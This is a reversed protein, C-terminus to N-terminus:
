LEAYFILTKRTKTDQIISYGKSVYLQMIDDIRKKSEETQDKEDLDIRIIKDQFIKM